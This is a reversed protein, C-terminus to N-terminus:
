IRTFLLLSNSVQSSLPTGQDGCFNHAFALITPDQSFSRIFDTKNSQARSRVGASAFTKPFPQSLISRCGTPDHSYSLFGSGHASVIRSCLGRHFDPGSPSLAGTKRKVYFICAKRAVEAQAGAAGIDVTQAWYRPSAVRIKKILSFDPLLCPAM